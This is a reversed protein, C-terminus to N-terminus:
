DEMALPPQAAALAPVAAALRDVSEATWPGRTICVVHQIGLTELRRCRDVFEGTPEAPDFRTSITKDIDDYSRCVAACEDALVALKRRITHGDDPVDFLNCADAYRAVLPLTRKEGMGGILIPPHPRSLPPPSSVPDTLRLTTGTFPRRDGSWMRGALALTDALLDFRERQPPLPLGMAEAEALHYGAGLGLWARGRSLVDLTTTAKILVAAPRSAVATVMTGLRIRSTRSALYGLVTYAELMPEDSSTGPEAQLLHDNVWLTDLGGADATRAVDDLEDALTDATGPWSYNTVNLSLRM